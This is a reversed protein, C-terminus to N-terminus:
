PRSPPATPLKAVQCLQSKFPAFGSIPDLNQDDVLRNVNAEGAWNHPVHVAGPLIIDSVEAKLRISGRPSSIVVMDESKIGRPKADAPNIEVRPEPVVRRLRRINRHQSHTFAITRAGSTLVLPFSEALDPRSLPSEAPEVYVPLPDHGYQVLISSAIEVKGSPTQFGVREYRKEPQYGGTYEIGQPHQKLYDTTIGSPELLHDISKNFDGGWFENSLGLREVLGFIIKWEPWSEGVPEVAPEIFRIHNGKTLLVQRELWSAIPLVIDALQTGSNHFYETVAIFDLKKLNEVLRNTNPFFTVNLGAGFLAKIPYPIGSEIHQALTNSQMQECQKTWTPFRASSIGPPFNAVREHLTINNRPKPPPQGRNGGKIDLNGTLAPLLIIARHNQVGNSCHTTAVPSVLINAPKQTAYLIAAETIKAAPVGTISEVKDPTYQRALKKLGDFGTTWKEVFDRDYRQENIIVNILGLALAGDTGPRLQLHIDAKAAIKTRRPDVVILKLGSQKAALYEKWFKPLSHMIGSGWIVKCKSAPNAFAAEHEVLLGYDKGYTVIAALWTATFCNSTGTCYNPSGFAHTLRHYYDQYEKTNSIYFVVSEPGYQSAISQLKSATTDLAEDWSIRVFSGNGREGIRKLPYKLRDPHYVFDPQARWRPCIAVRPDAIDINVVKGQRIHVKTPCDSSCMYCISDKVVTEDMEAKNDSVTIRV